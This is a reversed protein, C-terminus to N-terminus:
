IDNEDDTMLTETQSGSAELEGRVPIRVTRVNSLGWMQLADTALLICERGDRFDPM